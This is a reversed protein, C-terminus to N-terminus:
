VLQGTGKFIRAAEGSAAGDGRPDAPPTILTSTRLPLGRLPAEAGDKDKTPTACGAILLTVALFAPPSFNRIPM